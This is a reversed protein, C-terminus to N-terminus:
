SGLIGFIYSVQPRHNITDSIHGGGQLLTPTPSANSFDLIQMIAVIDQGILPRAKAPNAYNGCYGSWHSAQIKHLQVQMLVLTMTPGILPSSELPLQVQRLLTSSAKSSIPVSLYISVLLNGIVTM